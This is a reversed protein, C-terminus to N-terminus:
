SDIIIIAFSQDCMLLDATMQLHFKSEEDEVIASDSEEGKVFDINGLHLIAAV